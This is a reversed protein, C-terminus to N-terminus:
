LLKLCKDEKRKSYKAIFKDVKPWTRYSRDDMAQNFFTEFTIKRPRIKNLLLFLNGLKDVEEDPGITLM